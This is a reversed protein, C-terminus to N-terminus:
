CKSSQLAASIGKFQPLGIELFRFMVSGVNDDGPDAIAQIAPSVLASLAVRRPHHPPARAQASLQPTVLVVSWSQGM